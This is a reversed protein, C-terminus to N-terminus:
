RGDVPPYLIRSISRSWYKEEIHGSPLYFYRIRLEDGSNLLFEVARLNYRADHSVSIDKGFFFSM